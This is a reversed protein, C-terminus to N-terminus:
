DVEIKVSEAWVKIGSGSQFRLSLHEDDSRHGPCIAEFNNALESPLFTVSAVCSDETFPMEDDRRHSAFNTVDTFSLVLKIPLDGSVWAGTGRRWEMRAKKETPRYEFGVFDFCNHLDYYTDEAVIAITQDLQFNSRM